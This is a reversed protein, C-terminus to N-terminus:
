NDRPVLKMVFGDDSAALTTQFAGSTVPFNSSTTRGVLYIEGASGVAVGRILEDGNGGVYSAYRISAGSSDLIYLVGDGSGGGFSRQLANSTTQIDRSTTRGFVLINGQQDAVPGLLLDEGSGGLLRVADFSSGDPRLRAFFADGAGQRSGITAPFDASATVGTSLVSGDSLVWHRHESFEDGSGGLLTSYVLSSAQPDLLAMFADVPGTSNPQASGNTTPFNTSRSNGVISIRGNPTLRVSAVVEGVASGTGGLRTSFIPATGTSNLKLVFADDAGRAQTQVVGSTTTFNSGTVRGVVIVNDQNDVLLGGRPWGGGTYTCWRLAALDGSIRCVYGGGPTPVPNHLNPRYAGGTAPIDPSTTGSTFIIDGGSAVAIGYPPREMGSGGFYTATELRSGDASLVALYSDGVGGGFNRQFAGPTTPMDTSRARAGFLLRGGSLLTPERIEDFDNGGVYTAYDIAYSSSPPPPPPGVIDTPPGGCSAVAVAAISTPIVGYKFRSPQFRSRGYMQRAGGSKRADQDEDWALDPVRPTVAKWPGESLDVGGWGTANSTTRIVM